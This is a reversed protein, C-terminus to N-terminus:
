SARPTRAGEVDDDEEGIDFVRSSPDRPALPFVLSRVCSDTDSWVSSSHMQRGSSAQPGRAEDASDLDDEADLELPRYLDLLERRRRYRRELHTSIYLGCSAGLLNAQAPNLCRGSSLSAGV